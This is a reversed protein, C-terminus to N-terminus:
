LLLLFCGCKIEFRHVHIKARVFLPKGLFTSRDNKNKSKVSITPIKELGMRFESHYIFLLSPAYSYVQYIRSNYMSTHTCFPDFKKFPKESIKKTKTTPERTLNPPGKAYRFRGIERRPLMRGYVTKQQQRQRQRFPVHFTEDCADDIMMIIYEERGWQKAGNTKVPQTDIPRQERV